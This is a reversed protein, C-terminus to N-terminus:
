ASRAVALLRETLLNTLRRNVEGENEVYYQMEETTFGGIIIGFLLGRLRNDRAVLEKVKAFRADMATNSFNVKRKRLFLRFAAVLLDNQQKAVPRLTDNQFQEAPAAAPALSLTPRLSLRQADTM